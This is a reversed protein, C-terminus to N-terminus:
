PGSKDDMLAGQSTFIRAMISVPVAPCGEGFVLSGPIDVAPLVAIEVGGVDKDRVEVTRRGALMTKPHGFDTPGDAIAEVVYQGPLFNDLDFAGGAAFSPLMPEDANPADQRWALVNGNVPVSFGKPNDLLQVVHGSIRVGAQRILQIDLHLAEQGAALAIPRASAAHLARPYYTIRETEDSGDRHTSPHARLYYAGATRRFRYEGLDDTTTGDIAAMERNGLVIGAPPMASNGPNPGIPRLDLLDVRVGEVPVGASDTVRGALVAYPGLLVHVQVSTRDPSLRAGSPPQGIGSYGPQDAFVSYNGLPVMQFQFRGNRDCRTFLVREAAQLKVRAGAIPKHTASDTVDGEVAGTRPPAQAPTQASLLACFGLLSLTRRPRSPM